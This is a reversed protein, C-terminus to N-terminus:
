HIGDETDQVVEKSEQEHDVQLLQKIEEEEAKQQLRADTSFFAREVLLKTVEQTKELQAFYYGQSIVEDLFSKGLADPAQQNKPHLTIVFSSGQKDLHVYARDLFAYAAAYITTLTYTIEPLLLVVAGDKVQISNM